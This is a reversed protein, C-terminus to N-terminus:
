VGYHVNIAHVVASFDMPNIELVSDNDFGVNLVFLFNSFEYVKEGTGATLNERIRDAKSLLLLHQYQENIEQTHGDPHAYSLHQTPTLAIINELYYCIEPYDAEPFIHHIHIARDNEHLGDLHETKGGRMQENFLRLFRKAKTSQYRYYAANVEVPHVAAYDKRTVGKPKDAYVDRFNNRNYMLMDYTIIQESMHGRETGYANRFYALPNLVKIFIRNSEVKGNIKTNEITFDSFGEKMNRYTHKTQREFFSEFLGMIGSDSLVKEIYTKLFFLANRERLAIYELVEGNSIKYFNRSGKKVKALVQANALMEMPQQFFKDYESKASLSEVGPKKFIAEINEVAYGYHWIDPTTFFEDGHELGYNYICDAIVTVVDAACKQDIWRGNGSKRIDYDNQNCFDIISQQTLM